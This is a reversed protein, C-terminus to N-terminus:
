RSLFSVHPYRISHEKWWTLPQVEEELVIIHHFLYITREYALMAKTAENNSVLVDFLFNANMTKTQLANNGGILEFVQQNEGVLTDYSKMNYGVIIIKVIGRAMLNKYSPRAHFYVHQPGKCKLNLHLFFHITEFCESSINGTYMNFKLSQILTWM